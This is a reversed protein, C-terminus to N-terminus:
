PDMTLLYAGSRARGQVYMVSHTSDLNNLRYYPFNNERISVLTCCQLILVPTKWRENLLNVFNM